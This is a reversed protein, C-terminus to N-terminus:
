AKKKASAKKAVVVAVVTLAVVGAAAIPAVKKVLPQKEAPVKAWLAAAKQGVPSNKIFALKSNEVPAKKAAKKAAKAAKKEAKAQAKLEKKTLPAEKKGLLAKVDIKKM